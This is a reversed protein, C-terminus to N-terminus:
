PAWRKLVGVIDRLPLDKIARSTQIAGFPHYLVFRRAIFTGLVSSSAARPFCFSAQKPPRFKYPTTCYSARCPDCTHSRPEEALYYTNAQEDSTPDAIFTLPFTLVSYSLMGVIPSLVTSAFDDVTSVLYRSPAQVSPYHFLQLSTTALSPM